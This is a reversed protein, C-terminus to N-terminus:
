LQGTKHDGGGEGYKVDGTLKVYGGTLLATKLDSWTGVNTALAAKGDDAPIVGYATNDSVFCALNDATLVGGNYRSGAQAFVGSTQVYSANEYKVVTVGFAGAGGTLAGTVTITKGSPLYVNDATGGATNGKVKAAGSVQFTGGGVYVGGTSSATNGSITGGNMTVTGSTIYVGGGVTGNGGTIYGGAVYKENDTDTGLASVTEVATGRGDTLTIKHIPKVTANDTLTLSAGSNVTIVCDSGTMRVGHGNLDLTVPRQETGKSVTIAGDATADALLKVTDGANAADFAAQVTAFKSNGVQAASPVVKMHMRRTYAGDAEAIVCYMEGDDSGLVIMDEDLIGLSGDSDGDYGRGIGAGKEGGNAILTGGGVNVKGGSGVYM